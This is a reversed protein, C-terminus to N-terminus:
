GTQEFEDEDHDDRDNEGDFAPPFLRVEMLRTKCAAARPRHLLTPAPINGVGCSVRVKKVENAVHSLLNM